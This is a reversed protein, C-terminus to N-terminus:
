VPPLPWEPPTMAERYTWIRAGDPALGAQPITRARAGTAVIVHRAEYAAEGAKGGRKAPSPKGATKAAAKAATKAMQDM